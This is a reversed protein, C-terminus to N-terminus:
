FQHGKRGFKKKNSRWEWPAIPQPMRWLGTGAEHASHEAQQWERCFAARCYNQWLWANGHRVQELNLVKGNHSVIGVIRGFSPSGKPEVDVKDGPKLQNQLFARAEEGGQQDAEPADIGYFRVPVDHMDVIVTDGDVVRVVIAKLAGAPAPTLLTCSLACLLGAALLGLGNKLITRLSQHCVLARLM